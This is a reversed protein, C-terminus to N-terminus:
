PFTLLLICWGTVAELRMDNDDVLKDRLDCGDGGDEERDMFHLQTGVEPRAADM